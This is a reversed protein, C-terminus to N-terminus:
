FYNVCICLYIYIYVHKEWSRSDLFRFFQSTKTNVHKKEVGPIWFFPCSQSTKTNISHFKSGSAELYLLMM